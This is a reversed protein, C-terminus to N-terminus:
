PNLSLAANLAALHTRAALGAPQILAAYSPLNVQVDALSQLSELSLIIELSQESFHLKVFDSMSAIIQPLSGSMTQGSSVNSSDKLMSAQTQLVPAISAINSQAAEYAAYTDATLFDTNRFTKELSESTPDHDTSEFLDTPHFFSQKPSNIPDNSAGIAEILGAAKLSDLLGEVDGFSSLSSVYTSLATKGDIAILLTRLKRPLLSDPDRATAAGTMTRRYILM